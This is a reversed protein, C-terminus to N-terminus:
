NRLLGMLIELDVQDELAWVVEKIDSAQRSSISQGSWKVFKEFLADDNLTNRPDGYPSSIARKLARGEEFIVEVLTPRDKDPYISDLSEDATINVKKALEHIREDAIRESTFQAETVEGDLLTVAAIYPLNFQCAKYYSDVDVPTDKIYMGHTLQSVNIEQIEDLIITRDKTMDFCAEIAVHTMRCRPWPKIYVNMVEFDQGLGREKFRTSLRRDDGLPQGGLGEKSMIAAEIGNKAQYGCSLFNTDYALSRPFVKPANFGAIGMAFQIEETSLDMLKSAVAASSYTAAPPRNEMGRIKTAVDYGIVVSTIIEEGSSNLKEGVALATPIVTRGPHASGGFAAADKHGDNCDHVQAYSANAFAAWTCSTKRIAKAVSCEEPQNLKALLQSIPQAEAKRLGMFITGLSDLVLRKVQHVVDDPLEDYRLEKIYEAIEVGTRLTAELEKVM